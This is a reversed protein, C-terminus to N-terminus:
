PMSRKLVTTAKGELRLIFAPRRLIRDPGFTVPGTLGAFDKVKKLEDLLTDGSQTQGLAQVLIRIGDYALAARVSVDQQFAARFKKAFEETKPLDPDVAFATAMVVPEGEGVSRLAGDDGGFLLLPGSALLKRVEAFEEASGVFLVAGPNAETVRPALEAFKADKGFTIVVVSATKETAKTLQRQFADV